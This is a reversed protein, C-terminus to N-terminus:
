LNLGIGFGFSIEEKSFLNRNYILHGTPINYHLNAFVIDSFRKKISMQFIHSYLLSMDMFYSLGLTYNDKQINIGTFYSTTNRWTPFEYFSVYLLTSFNYDKIQFNYNYFFSVENSMTHNLMTNDSITNYLKLGSGFTMNKTKYAIDLGSTFYSGNLEFIENYITDYLAETIRNRDRYHIYSGISWRSNIDFKIKYLLNLLQESEHLYYVHTYYWDFDDYILYVGMDLKKSIPKELSIQYSNIKPSNLKREYDLMVTLTSDECMFLPSIM